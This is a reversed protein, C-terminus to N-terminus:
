AGARWGRRRGGRGLPGALRERPALPAPRPGCRSSSPSTTRKRGGRGEGGGGGGGSGAKTGVRRGRCRPRASIQAASPRHSGRRQRDREGDREGGRSAETGPETGRQGDRQRPEKRQTETVMRKGTCRDSEGDRDRDRQEWRRGELTESESETSFVSSETKRASLCRERACDLRQSARCNM